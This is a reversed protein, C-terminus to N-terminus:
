YSLRFFQSSAGTGTTVAQYHALPRAANPNAVTTQSIVAGTDATWNASPGLTPSTELTFAEPPTNINSSFNITIANAAGVVINTVVVKVPVTIGANPTANYYIGQIDVSTIIKQGAGNTSSSARVDMYGFHTQGDAGSVFSFGTAATEPFKNNLIGAGYVIALRPRYNPPYVTGPGITEGGLWAHLYSTASDNVFMNTTGLSNTMGRIDAVQSHDPVLGEGFIFLNFDNTGDGDVDFYFNMTDVNTSAPLIAPYPAFASSEVVQAKAGQGAFLAGLGAATTYAALRKQSDPTLHGLQQNKKQLKM